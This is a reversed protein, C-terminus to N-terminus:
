SLNFSHLRSILILTVQDTGFGPFAQYAIKNTEVPNDLIYLDFIAKLM